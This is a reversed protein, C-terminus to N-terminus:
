MWSTSVDESLIVLPPCMLKLSRAADPPLGAVKVDRGAGLVETLVTKTIAVWGGPTRYSLVCRGERRDSLLLTEDYPEAQQAAVIQRDSSRIYRVPLDPILSTKSDAQADHAALVFLRGTQVGATAESDSDCRRLTREIRDFIAEAFQQPYDFLAAVERTLHPLKRWGNVWALRDDHADEGVFVDELSFYTVAPWLGANKAILGIESKSYGMDLYFPTALATCMSDGLKYFFIFALVAKLIARARRESRATIKSRPPLRCRSM